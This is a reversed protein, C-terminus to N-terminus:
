VWVLKEFVLGLGAKWAKWAKPLYVAPLGASLIVGLCVRAEGLYTGL